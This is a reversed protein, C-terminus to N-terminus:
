PNTDRIELNIVGELRQQPQGSTLVRIALTYDRGHQGGQALFSVSRSDHVISQVTVATSGAIKPTATVSEVSAIAVGGLAPQFDVTFIRNDWTRKQLSAM